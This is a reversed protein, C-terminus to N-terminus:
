PGVFSDRASGPVEDGHLRVQRRRAAEERSLREVEGATAGAQAQQHAAFFAEEIDAPLWVNDGNHVPTQNWAASGDFRLMWQGEGRHNPSNEMINAAEGRAARLMVPSRDTLIVGRPASRWGPRERGFMVYYSYSIQPLNRWDLADAGGCDELRRAAEANGGCATTELPAYGLRPLTFFNASNSRAPDKGVDWWRSGALSASALPVSDGYDNGYQGFAGALTGLNASCGARQQQARVTSFVPWVAATGLVLVAAVSVMDAWRGGFRRAAVVEIPQEAAASVRQMTREILLARGPLSVRTDAVLRCMGELVEARARLSAPVKSVRYGSSVFADLAEDDDATLLVEGGEASTEGGGASAVGEMTRAVLGPAIPAQGADLLGLVGAVQAARARLGAPVRQVEWGADILAELAREDAASIADGPQVHEQNM